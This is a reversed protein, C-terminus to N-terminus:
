YNLVKIDDLGIFSGKSDYLIEILGLEELKYLTRSNVRCIHVFGSKAKEWSVALGDTSLSRERYRAMEKERLEKKEKETATGQIICVYNRIAYDWIDECSRAYDIKRVAEEMVKKQAASLKKM